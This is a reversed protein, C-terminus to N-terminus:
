GGRGGTRVHGESSKRNLVDWYTAHHFSLNESRLRNQQSCAGLRLLSHAAAGRLLCRGCAAPSAQSRDARLSVPLGADYRGPLRGGPGPFPRSPGKTLSAAGALVANAESPCGERAGFNRTGREGSESIDSWFRRRKEEGSPLLFRTSCFALPTDTGRSPVRLRARTTLEIVAGSVRKRSTHKCHNNRRNM